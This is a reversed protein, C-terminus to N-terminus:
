EKYNLCTHYARFCGRPHLHPRDSCGVCIFNTRKRHTPTSCVLCNRDKPCYDILHKNNQLREVPTSTPRGVSRSVTSSDHLKEAKDLLQMVLAKKYDKFALQELNNQLKYLIFANVQTIELLWYFIRKWWKTTKRQYHGYYQVMQDVKDCGNMSLNYDNIVTPISIGGSKRHVVTDGVTAKTSVIVVPKKAKKDRWAAVFIDGARNRYAKQQCHALKLTKIQPPFNKRNTNLTGTYYTKHQSIYQVLKYTTYYRDAFVHHGQDLGQLLYQFVKEAQGSSEDQNPMYSTENGFYTLINFVYGTASDCLGFTKIHYKKPKSANYQKYKWKGKWGIVMEDVSLNQFPYFAQQFKSVLMNLFPEIKSKGVASTDSAHMMTHYITCFRTRPMINAYFKTYAVPFTSWYDKISPKRDVGSAIIIALVKFFEGKTIDQWNALTSRRRFPRNIQVKIKAYDNIMDVVFDVVDSSLLEELSDLEKDSAVHPQVGPTRSPIFDFSSTTADNSSDTVDVWHDDATVTTAPTRGTIATSRQRSSVRQRKRGRSTSRSATSTGAAASSTTPLLPDTNSHEPTPLASSYVNANNSNSNNTSTSTNAVVLASDNNENNTSYHGSCDSDVDSFFEQVGVVDNDSSENSMSSSSDWTSLLETADGTSLRKNFRAAMILSTCFIRPDCSGFKM